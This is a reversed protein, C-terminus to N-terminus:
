HGLLECSCSGGYGVIREKRIPVASRQHTTVTRDVPQAERAEVARRDETAKETPNRGAAIGFHQGRDVRGFFAEGILPSQHIAVPGVVRELALFAREKQAGEPQGLGQGPSALRSPGAGDEFSGGGEDVVDPQESLLHIWDAHLKEAIPSTYSSLSM